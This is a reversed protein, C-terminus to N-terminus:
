MFALKGNPRIEASKPKKTKQPNKNDNNNNNHKQKLVMAKLLVSISLNFGKTDDAQFFGTTEESLFLTKLDRRPRLKQAPRRM